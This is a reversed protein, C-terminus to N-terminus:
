FRIKFHQKFKFDHNFFVLGLFFLDVTLTVEPDKQIESWAEEMERSWHIDDFIFVSKSSSKNKLLSFNRLTPAKRHNGDIFAMDVQSLSELNPALTSEFDGEILRINDLGVERFVVKARKAIEISGEFTVVSTDPHSSALYSTTVGLSTGLEVITLPHYHRTLRFILQAWKKNKLSTRAISKVKREKSALSSSGAGFDEIRLVTDDKLLQNRCSEIKDYSPYKQNDNLVDTVMQFVFPSHIGHGKGNSANLFHRLYKFALQGTSYM